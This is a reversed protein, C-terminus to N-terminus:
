RIIAERGEEEIGVCGVMRGCETDIRWWGVGAETRDQDRRGFVEFVKKEEGSGEWFVVPCVRYGSVGKESIGDVGFSKVM